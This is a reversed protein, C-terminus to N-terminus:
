KEEIVQFEADISGERLKKSREKEKQNQIRNDLENAADQLIKLGCFVFFDTLTPKKRRMELFAVM